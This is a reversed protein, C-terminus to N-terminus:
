LIAQAIIQNLAVLNVNGKFELRVKGLGSFWLELEGDLDFRGATEISFAQIRTYPLSTYDKKKGTIGQINVSIIRKSTFVVFDRVGKFAVFVQEDQVLLPQVDPYVSDVSTEGLKFVTGNAFDIMLLPYSRTDSFTPDSWKTLVAGLTPIRTM